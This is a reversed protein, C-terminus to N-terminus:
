VSFIFIYNRRKCMHGRVTPDTFKLPKNADIYSEFDGMEVGQKTLSFHGFWASQPGDVLGDNGNTTMMDWAELFKVPVVDSYIFAFERPLRVQGTSSTM